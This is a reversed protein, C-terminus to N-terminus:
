KIDEFFREFTDAITDMASPSVSCMHIFLCIFVTFSMLWDDLWDNLWWRLMDMCTNCVLWQCSAVFLLPLSNLCLFMVIEMKLWRSLQFRQDTNNITPIANSHTSFIMLLMWKLEDWWSEILREQDTLSQHSTSPMVPPSPLVIFQLTRQRYTTILGIRYKLSQSPNSTSVSSSSPPM